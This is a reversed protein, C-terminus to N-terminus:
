TFDIVNFKEAALAYIGDRFFKEIEARTVNGRDTIFKIIGEYRGRADTSLQGAIRLDQMEKLVAAGLKLESTKNNAPLINKAEIPRINLVPQSYYSLLSIELQTDIEAIDGNLVSFRDFDEDTTADLYEGTIRGRSNVFLKSYEGADLLASGGAGEQAWLTVTMCLTLVAAFCRKKM